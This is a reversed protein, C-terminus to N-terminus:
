QAGRAQRCSFVSSRLCVAVVTFSSAPMIFAALLPSILGMVALSAAVANYALSTAITWSLTRMLARSGDLLELIPGLGERGLSVDAAALSAEAGGRVAIGVTAAALAGADNVGDGIMITPQVNAWERVRRLKHEPTVGGEADAEPVGVARAVSAVLRPHDGSLIRVAFGRRRLETILGRAEPRIPDGLAAVARVVGDLAIYAPSAGASSARDAAAALDDPLTAKAREMFRRTGVAVRVGDVLGTIGEGPVQSVGATDHRPSDGAHERLARAAPHDSHSELAAVVSVVSRDGMWGVVALRGSTITGTKDLVILGGRPAEALKQLADGGKILMGRRAARGIAVTVALPTALGLGCPCTAILLAAAHDIAVSVGAHWWVALTLAALGLLAWLLWAGWRDARQVIRARRAAADEVLRLLKGVRSAEGTAEVRVLLLGTVSVSGAAVRDGERVSVPRSEGSLLSVDLSGAGQIVVGDAPLCEGARVEVTQGPRLEETAVEVAEGTQDNRRRAFAPTVSFLLEVADAAFRQQRQQVYRGVLLFFVLASISDFYIDGEGMLTKAIGWAGGLYLGLAIPVDLHITRTRISAWAGKLFVLGPWALCITNLVMASYRFLQEFGREIGEFMGAYLAFFLLMINGACAGAVALRVLMRRDEIKRAERAAVGRAPHPAYGLSDLMQAVRSLTIQAPDFIVRVMARRLDLRAEAVGPAVHPLKEVLWVCAACHVGELLLEVKVLGGPAPSCAHAQFAASDMEAYKRGTAKAPSPAAESQRLLRYYGELGCASVVGYATECGHCCFQAAEGPKILGPPVPSGCHTCVTVGSAASAPQAAFTTM